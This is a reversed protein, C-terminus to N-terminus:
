EEEAEKDSRVFILPTDSDFDRVSHHSGQNLLRKLIYPQGVLLVEDM